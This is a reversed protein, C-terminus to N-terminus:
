LDFTVKHNKEKQTKLDNKTEGQSTVVYYLDTYVSCFLLMFLVSM